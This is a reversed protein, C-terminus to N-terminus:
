FMWGLGLDFWTADAEPTLPHSFRRVDAKIAIESIPRFTLGGEFIQTEASDDPTLGEPTRYQTDFRQYRLYPVLKADAGPHILHMLDYGAEGYVGYESSAIPGEETLLSLQEAGSIGVVAAEGRLELGNWTYRVDLEGLTLYGAGAPVQDQNASGFYLSGGVDLTNLPTWDLRAVGAWSRARSLQAEQHGEAIGDKTFGIARM